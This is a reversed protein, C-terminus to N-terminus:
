ELLHTPAAIVSHAVLWSNRTPVGVGVVHTFGWRVLMGCHQVKDRKRTQNGEACLFWRASVGAFCSCSALIAPWKLAACFHGCRRVTSPEGVKVLYRGKTEDFGAVSAVHGNLLRDTHMHTHTHARPTYTHTHAHTRACTYKHTHAIAELRGIVFVCAVVILAM